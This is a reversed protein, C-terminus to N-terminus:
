THTPGTNTEQTRHREPTSTTTKNSQSTDNHAIRFSSEERLSTSRPTSFFNACLVLQFRLIRGPTIPDFVGLLFSFRLSKGIEDVCFYVSSASPAVARPRSPWSSLFSKNKYQMLRLIIVLSETTTSMTATIDGDRYLYETGPLGRTLEM